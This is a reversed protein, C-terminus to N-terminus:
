ARRNRREKMAYSARSLLGWAIGFTVVGVVIRWIVSQNFWTAELSINVTFVLAVMAVILEIWVEIPFKLANKQEEETFVMSAAARWDVYAGAVIWILGFIIFVIGGWSSAFDGVNKAVFVSAVVAGFPWRIMKGWFETKKLFDM